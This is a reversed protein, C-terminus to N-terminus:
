TTRGPEAGSRMPRAPAVLGGAAVQLARGRDRGHARPGTLEPADPAVAPAFRAVLTGDKGILFKEFNWLVEPDDTPDLGHGRLTESMGCQAAVNVVLV